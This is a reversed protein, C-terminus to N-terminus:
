KGSTSERSSSFSKINWVLILTPGDWCLDTGTAWRSKRLLTRLLSVVLRRTNLTLPLARRSTMNLTLSLRGLPTTAWCQLLRSYHKNIVVASTIGTPNDWLIHCHIFLNFILTDNTLFPHLTTFLVCIVVLWFPPPWFCISWGAWALPAPQLVTEWCHSHNPAQRHVQSQAIEDWSLLIINFVILWIYCKKEISTKISWWRLYICITYM